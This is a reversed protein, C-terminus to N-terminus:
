KFAEVTTTTANMTGVENKKEKKALSQAQCVAVVSGREGSPNGKEFRQVKSMIPRWTATILMRPPAVRASSPVQNSVEPAGTSQCTVARRTSLVANRFPLPPLCFAKFVRM